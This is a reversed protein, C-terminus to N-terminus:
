EIGYLQSLGFEYNLTELPLDILDNAFGQWDNCWHPPSVAVGGLKLVRQSRIVAFRIQADTFETPNSILLHFRLCGDASTESFVVIRFKWGSRRRIPTISEAEMADIFRAVDGSAFAHALTADTGTVAPFTLTLAYPQEFGVNSLAEFTSGIRTTNPLPLLDM